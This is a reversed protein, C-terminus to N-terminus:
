RLGHHKLLASVAALSVGFEKCTRGWGGGEVVIFRAAAWVDSRSSHGATAAEFDERSITRPPRKGSAKALAVQAQAQTPHSSLTTTVIGGFPQAEVRSVVWSSGAPCIVHYNM